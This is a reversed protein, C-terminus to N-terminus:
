GTRRTETIPVTPAFFYDGIETHPIELLNCIREIESAKFESRGNIKNRFCPRSIKAADSFGTITYGMEIIRGKLKNSNTMNDEKRTELKAVDVYYCTTELIDVDKEFIALFTEM